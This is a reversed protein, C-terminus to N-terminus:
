LSLFYIAPLIVPLFIIIIGKVSISEGRDVFYNIWSIAWLWFAIVALCILSIAKVENM